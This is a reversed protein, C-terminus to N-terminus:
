ARWAPRAGVALALCLPSYLRRDRARFAASTSGPAVVDTRGVLGLCGRVGLVAAVIGAVAAGAAGGAAAVDGGGQGVHRTIEGAKVEEEKGGVAASSQDAEHPWPFRRQPLLNPPPPQIHPDAQGLLRRPEVPDAGGKLQASADGDVPLLVIEVREPGEGAEPHGERMRADPADM